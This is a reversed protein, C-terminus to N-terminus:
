SADGRLGCLLSFDCFDCRADVVIGGEARASEQAAAYTKKATQRPTGLDQGADRLIQGSQASVTGEGIADLAETIGETTMSWAKAIDLTPRGHPDLAPNASVFEGQKLLFYGVDASDDHLSWAYSALQLAEGADFLEPYKKAAATWKLDIVTPRGSADEALVDRFGLFPVELDGRRLRLTLPEEFRSEVSTIVLGADALRTFFEELSRVSTERMTTLEVERGPLLLESALQPLLADLTREIDAASPPGTRGRETGENVLEEVVAHVLTGIMQNGSPVSAVSAPRIGLGTRYTWKQRCGLLNEAQSYSLAQPVLHPAPDVQKTLDDPRAVPPAPPPVRVERRSGALSWGEPGLAERPDVLHRALVKAVDEGAEARDAALHALLSHPATAQETRTRTRVVILRGAGLLASLGADTELAALAAPDLLVAGLGELATIELPDWTVGTQADQRDAGWWLVDGGDARLQAPRTCATWASTAEPRAFPSGARGGASEVIQSLERPRLVHDEGLTDLVELFTQLHAGARVLGPDGQGLARLRTGLWSTAARLRAPTLQDPSIPDTVLASIERAIELAAAEEPDAALETLVAEWAPGGTGPEAALADLFRRRVRSPVLGIPERDTEPADLVRLDLFAGLQQVDVPAIAISLYLPLIQLSTRNASAGAVGIAAQGRRRLEQDLLVTDETALVHVPEGDRGALFRAATEAAAWEDDAEVLVLEPRGSQADHATVVDVGAGALLRLLRPWMGPLTEPSEQCRIEDIGLPWPDASLSELLEVLERLDDAAGPSLEAVEEIACLADIRAPLGPAPRLRAGAAVAADRWHLMTAATAWPDVDFSDHVWEHRAASIASAYQAIRVAPDVSPRTLALRTQLLAVLGRPGMRVQGSAGGSGADAWSTGDLSWGFEIQM